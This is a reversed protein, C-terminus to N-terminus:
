FLTGQELRKAAIECYRESIEIGTARRGALKAAVLTSGSGMFPDIVTGENWDGDIALCWQMLAVPKQTPHVKGEKLAKARAFDFVRIARDYTTWALEGDALSFNRQGKDWFLWGQSPPLNFYNGGWIISNKAVGRIMEIVWPKPPQKDWGSEEAEGYDRWGDKQSKRHRAANIGYPPDTLLLDFSEGLRPVLWSCDANYITINDKNFYPKM